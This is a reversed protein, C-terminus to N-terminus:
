DKRSLIVGAGKCAPCDVLPKNIEEMLNALFSDINKKLDEHDKGFFPKIPTYGTRNEPSYTMEYIQVARSKRYRTEYRSRKGMKALNVKYKEPECLEIRKAVAFSFDYDSTVEAARPDINNKIHQRVIDYSQKSTLRCPKSALILDPFLIEDILQHKVSSDTIAILGDSAWQTKPVPYNLGAYGRVEDIKLITNFEFDKDVEAAPGVDSELSYLSQLGSYNRWKEDDGDVDKPRIVLPIKDSVLSKDILEYRPNTNPCQQIFYIRKPNSVIKLWGPHFTKAGREGDFYLHDLGSQGHRNESDRVFYGADTEIADIKLLNPM